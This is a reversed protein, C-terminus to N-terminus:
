SSFVIFVCRPERCTQLFNRDCSNATNQVLQSNVFGPTELLLKGACSHQKYSQLSNLSDQNRNTLVNVVKRIPVLAWTSCEPLCLTQLACTHHGQQWSSGEGATGIVRFNGSKLLHLPQPPSCNPCHNGIYSSSLM